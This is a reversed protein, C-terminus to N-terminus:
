GTLEEDIIETCLQLCEDCITTPGRAVQRGKGPDWGGCFSCTRGPYPLPPWTRALVVCGHCIYVGPGAILKKVQQQSRGCFSCTLLDGDVWGAEGDM